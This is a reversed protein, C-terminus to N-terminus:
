PLFFGGGNIFFFAESGYVHNVVLCMGAPVTYDGYGANYFITEGSRGLPFRPDCSNGTAGASGMLSDLAPVVRGANQIEGTTLTLWLSDNIIEVQAVGAGAEGQEGQEGPEGQPGVLSALFDEETGENGLSLWLEYASQGDAGASTAASDCGDFFGEEVLYGNITGDEPATAGPM